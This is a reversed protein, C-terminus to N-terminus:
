FMDWFDGLLQKLMKSYNLVDFEFGGCGASLLNVFV